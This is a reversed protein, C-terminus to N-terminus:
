VYMVFGGEPVFASLKWKEHRSRIGVERHRGTTCLKLCLICNKIAIAVIHLYTCNKCASFCLKEGSIQSKKNKKPKIELRPWNERVRQGEKQTPEGRDPSASPRAADTSETASGVWWKHELRVYSNREQKIKLRSLSFAVGERFSPLCSSM